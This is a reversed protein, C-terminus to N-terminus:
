KKKSPKKDETKAPAVIAPAVEPEPQSLPKATAAFELARARAEAMSAVGVAEIPRGADRLTEADHVLRNVEELLWDGREHDPGDAGTGMLYVSQYEGCRAIINQLSEVFEEGEEQELICLMRVLRALAALAPVARARGIEAAHWQRELDPFGQLLGVFQLRDLTEAKGDAIAEITPKYSAWPSADDVIWALLSTAEQTATAAAARALIDGGQGSLYVPEIGLTLAVREDELDIPWPNNCGDTLALNAADGVDLSIAMTADAWAAIIWTAGTRFVHAAAPDETKLTGVYAARGLRHAMGSLFVYAPKLQGDAYALSGPFVADNTTAARILLLARLAAVESEKSNDQLLPGLYHLPLREYGHQEVVTRLAVISEPIPADAAVGLGAIFKGAGQRLAADVEASSEVAALVPARSGGRRIAMVTHVLMDPDNGHVEWYAVMPGYASALSEARAELQSPPAEAEVEGSGGSPEHHSPLALGVALGTAKCAQILSEFEPDATSVRAVRVPIDAFALVTEFSDSALGAVAPAGASGDPREIVCFPENHTSAEGAVTVTVAAEYDGLPMAATPLQAWYPTNKRLRLTGLDRVVPNDGARALSATVVATVNEPAVFEIVLPEDAYVHPVPQDPAMEVAIDAAALAMAVLCAIM